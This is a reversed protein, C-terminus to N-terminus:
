LGFTTPEFGVGAVLMIRYPSGHRRNRSMSRSVSKLRAGRARGPYGYSMPLRASVSLPDRISLGEAHRGIARSAFWASRAVRGFRAGWLPLICGYPRGAGPLPLDRLEGIGVASPDRGLVQPLDLGQPLRELGKRPRWGQRAVEVDRGLHWARYVCLIPPPDVGVGWCSPPHARGERASAGALRM